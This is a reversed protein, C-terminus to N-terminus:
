NKITREIGATKDVTIINKAPDQYDKIVLIFNYVNELKQIDIL